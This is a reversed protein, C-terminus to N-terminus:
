HAALHKNAGLKAEITDMLKGGIDLSFQADLERVCTPCTVNIETLYDGIVDIGVFVLGRAKLQPGVQEAIFRDRETLPRGEGIAGAALNGRAEGALPVRALAYPVPEGDIMLIRKDGDAIEPLYLQGMIQQRGFDTLTELIVGLNADGDIIRFISAGGMGDLPKFVVNKHQQQFARLQDERRSVILPPCLDPFATAFFKENCDRLSQPRNVVLVGAAEARELFYTAYIYEMNFPPDKRMMIIDLDALPTLVEKGLEYWAGDVLEPDLSDAFAGILQLPQLLGHVVGEHLMLDDIGLYSIQWNRAQAAHIMALTSDKKLSLADLSDMIFAIKPSNKMGSRADTRWTRGNAFKARLTGTHASHLLWFSVM